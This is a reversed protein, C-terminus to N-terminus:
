ALHTVQKCVAQKTPRSGDRFKVKECIDEYKMPKGGGPPHRYFYCLAANKADMNHLDEPM